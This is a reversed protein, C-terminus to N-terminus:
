EADQPLQLGLSERVFDAHPDRWFRYLAGIDLAQVAERAAPRAPAFVPIATPGGVVDRRAAARWRSDFGFRRSEARTAQEGQANPLPAGYASPSFPQLPHRM